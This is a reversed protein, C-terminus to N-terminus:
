SFRREFDRLSEGTETVNAMQSCSLAPRDFMLKKNNRDPVISCSYMLGDDMYDPRQCEFNIGDKGFTLIMSYVKVQPIAGAASTLEDANGVM